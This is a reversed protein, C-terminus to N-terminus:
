KLFPYMLLGAYLTLAVFVEEAAAHLPNRTGLWISWAAIGVHPVFVMWAKPGLVLVCIFGAAVMGAAFLTRRCIKEWTTDGGYGQSSGTFLAPFLLTLQWGWVGMMVASINVTSAIV